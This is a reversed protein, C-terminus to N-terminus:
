RSEMPRSATAWPDSADHPIAFPTVEIDGIEFKEGPHVYQVHDIKKKIGQDTLM